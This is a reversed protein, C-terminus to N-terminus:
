WSGIGSVITFEVLVGSDRVAAHIILGVVCQVIKKKTRTKKKKIKAKNKQLELQEVLLILLSVVVM